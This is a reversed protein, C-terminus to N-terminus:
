AEVAAEPKSERLLLAVALASMLIVGANVAFMSQVGIRDYLFGSWTNGIISGIGFNTMWFLSQGTARWEAPVNDNIYQVAVVLYLSFSLGHTVEVMTALLPVSILSYLLSRIAFVIITFLLTRKHGWRRIIAAALLFLPMESLGQVTLAAGILRSSGGLENLYIPYFTFIAATGTQLLAVIALFSMVKRNRLMTGLGGWGRNLVPGAAEASGIRWILLWGILLAVTGIVFVLRVDRGAVANGAVLALVAWGAGGWLRLKGFSVRPHAEIFDLALSDILVGIPTSLLTYAVVVFLIIGVGRQLGMFPLVVAALLMTILLTRRRGWLDAGVGWFPQSIITTATRLSAILGIQVGSLGIQLLYINLFPQWSASSGYFFFYVACITASTTGLAFM